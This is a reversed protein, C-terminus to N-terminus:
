NSNKQKMYYSKRWEWKEELKKNKIRDMRLIRTSRRVHEMEMAIIYAQTEM